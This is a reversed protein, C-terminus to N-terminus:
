RRNKSEYERRAEQEKRWKEVEEVRAHYDFYSVGIEPRFVGIVLALVAVILKILVSGVLSIGITIGLWIWFGSVYFQLIELM